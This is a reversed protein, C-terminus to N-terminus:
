NLIWYTLFAYFTDYKPFGRMDARNVRLQERRTSIPSIVRASIANSTNYKTVQSRYSSKSSFKTTMDYFHYKIDALPLIKIFTPLYFNGVHSRLFNPINIAFLHHREFVKRVWQLKQSVAQRQKAMGLGSMKGENGFYVLQYEAWWLM